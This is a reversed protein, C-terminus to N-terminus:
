QRRLTRGIAVTTPSAEAWRMGEKTEITQWVRTTATRHRNGTVDENAALLVLQSQQRGTIFVLILGVALPHESYAQCPRVEISSSAACDAM